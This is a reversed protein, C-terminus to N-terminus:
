SIAPISCIFTDSAEPMVGSGVDVDYYYLGSPKLEFEIESNDGLYQDIEEQEQKEYKKSPDCSILFLVAM